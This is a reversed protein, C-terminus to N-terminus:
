ARDRSVLHGVHHDETCGELSYELHITVHAIKFDRHIMEQIGILM